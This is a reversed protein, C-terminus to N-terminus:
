WSTEEIVERSETTQKNLLGKPDKSTKQKVIAKKNGYPDEYVTTTNKRETTTGHADTTSSEREYTGPPLDTVRDPQCATLLSAAAMCTLILSTKM